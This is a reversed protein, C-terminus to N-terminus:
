SLRRLRRVRQDIEGAPATIEVIKRRSTAGRVLTVSRRPIALADAVADLAATTARGDAPPQTVRVVLAGDYIGGV